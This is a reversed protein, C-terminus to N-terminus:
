ETTIIRLMEAALKEADRGCSCVMNTGVVQDRFACGNNCCGQVKVLLQIGYRNLKEQKEKKTM